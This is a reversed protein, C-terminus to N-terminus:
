SAPRVMAACSSRSSRTARWQVRRSREKVVALREKQLQKLLLAQRLAPLGDSGLWGFLRRLRLRGGVTMRRRVGCLVLRGVTSGGGGIGTLLSGGQDKVVQDGPVVSVRGSDTGCAPNPCVDVWGGLRIEDGGRGGNGM